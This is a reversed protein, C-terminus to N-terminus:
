NGKYKDQDHWVKHLPNNPDLEIMGDKGTLTDAESSIKDLIEQINLEEEGKGDVFAYKERFHQKIAAECRVPDSLLRVLKEPSDDLVKEVFEQFNELNYEAM